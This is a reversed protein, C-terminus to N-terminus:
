KEVSNKKEATEKKEPADVKKPADAKKLAGAKKSAFAKPEGVNSGLLKVKLINELQQLKAQNFLASGDEYKAMDNPTLNVKRGLDKATLNMEMRAKVIHSGVVKTVTKPPIIDNERDVKSARQGDVGGKSAQNLETLL